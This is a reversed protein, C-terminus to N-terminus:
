LRPRNLDFPDRLDARGRPLPSGTRQGLARGQIGAKAPILPSHNRPVRHRCQQLHASDGLSVTGHLGIGADIQGHRGPRDDSQEALVTRAFAGQHLDQEAHHPRILTRDDEAVGFQRGARRAFRQAGADAHDMLMERQHIGHRHGVVDHQREAVATEPEIALTHRRADRPQALTVPQPEIGVADNLVQWEPHALADLDHLGQHALRM